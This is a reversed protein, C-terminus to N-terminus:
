QTPAQVTHPNNQDESYLRSLADASYNEQEVRHIIRTRFQGIYGCLRLQKKTPTRGTTLYILPLHNTVITFENGELLQHFARLADVIGLAEKDTTGDNM